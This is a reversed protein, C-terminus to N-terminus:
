ELYEAIKLGAIVWKRQLEDSALNVFDIPGKISKITKKSQEHVQDYHIRSSERSLIHVIFLGREFEPFHQPCTVPLSLLEQIQM